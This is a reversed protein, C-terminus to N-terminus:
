FGMLQMAIIVLSIGGIVMLEIPIFNSYKENLEKIKQRRERNKVKKGILIESTKVFTEIDDKYITKYTDRDYGASIKDPLIADYLSSIGGTCVSCGIMYGLVICGIPYLVYTSGFVLRVEPIFVLLTMLMIAPILGIAFGVKNTISKRKRIIYDYKEPANLIKSKILEYLDKMKDDDSNLSVEIDMKKDYIDMTIKQTIYNYHENGVTYNLYYTLRINKIEELRNEFASIFNEYKDFTITTSDYFDVHFKLYSGSDKFTWVQYEREYVRNRMEEAKYIKQYNKLDENMKSFIEYLAENTIIKNEVKISDNYM